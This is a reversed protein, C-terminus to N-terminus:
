GGSPPLDEPLRYGVGWRDLSALAAALGGIEAADLLAPIRYPVAVLAAWGEPTIYLITDDKDGLEENALDEDTREEDLNLLERLGRSWLLRRRGRQIQEYDNWWGLADADGLIADDLVGWPTRSGVKKATKQAGHTLELAIKEGNDGSKNFYEAFAAGSGTVSRLDQGVPLAELGKRALARTWRGVIGERWDHLQEPTLPKDIFLLIHTHLHEDSTEWGRTESPKVMLEVARVFGVMGYRSKEKQWRKGSAVAGWAYSLSDWMHELKNGYHHRMTLTLLALHGGQAEWAEVARALENKREFAIRSSCVPCAHSGCHQLGALSARGDAVRLGVEGNSGARVERGCGRISRLSSYDWLMARRAYRKKRRDRRLVEDDVLPPHRIVGSNDLSAEGSVGFFGKEPQAADCDRTNADALSGSLRAGSERCAQSFSTVAPAPEINHTM